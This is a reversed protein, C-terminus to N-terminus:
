ELLGQPNFRIVRIRVIVQSGTQHPLAPQWLGDVVELLGQPDFRAVGRRVVAQRNRKKSEALHRLGDAM